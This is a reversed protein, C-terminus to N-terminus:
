VWHKMMESLLRGHAPYAKKCCDMAYERDERWEKARYQVAIKCKEAM